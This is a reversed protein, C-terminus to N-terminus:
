NARQVCRDDIHIACINEAMREEEAPTGQAAESHFEELLLFDIDREYVTELCPTDSLPM